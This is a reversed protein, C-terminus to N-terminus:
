PPPRRASGEVETQGEQAPWPHSLSVTLEKRGGKAEQGQKPTKAAETGLETGFLVCSGAQSGEQFSTAWVLLRSSPTVVSSVSSQRSVCLHVGLHGVAYCPSMSVSLVWEAGQAGAEEGPLTLTEVASQVVEQLRQCLAAATELGEGKQSKM